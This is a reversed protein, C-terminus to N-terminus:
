LFIRLIGYVQDNNRFLGVISDEPGDLLDTGLEFAVNQWYQFIVRPNLYYTERTINYFYRFSLKINNGFIEQSIEGNLENTIKDFFLIAKNHDQILSQSFQLNVYFTNPARYDAGLVYQFVPRSIAELTRNIFSRKFIYALDGRLGVSGWVTEFEVGFIHQRDHKLRITQGTIQAFQALDRLTPHRESLPLMPPVTLSDLSPLDEHVYLYSFAYDLAQVTGAVRMGLESNRLTKAPKDEEISVTGLERNVQDFLAWDTDLFNLKSREFFPIFIGQLTHVGSTLEAKIM